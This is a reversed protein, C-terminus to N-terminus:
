QSWIKCIKNAMKLKKAWTKKSDTRELIVLIMNKPCKKLFFTDVIAFHQLIFFFFTLHGRWCFHTREPYINKQLKRLPSHHRNERHNQNWIMIKTGREGDVAKKKCRITVTITAEMLGRGFSGTSSKAWDDSKRTTRRVWSSSCSKKRPNTSPRCVVDNGGGLHRRVGRTGVRGKLEPQPNM